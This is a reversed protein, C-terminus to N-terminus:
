TSNVWVEPKGQERQAWNFESLLSSKENEGYNPEGNKPPDIPTFKPLFYYQASYSGNHHGNLQSNVDV